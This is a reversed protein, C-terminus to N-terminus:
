KGLLKSSIKIKDIYDIRKRMVLNTKIYSHFDTNIPKVNAFEYYLTDRKYIVIKWFLSPLLQKNIVKTSYDCGVIVIKKDIYDDFNTTIDNELSGWVGRNLSFEQLVMNSWINVSSSSVINPNILVPGPSALESIDISYPLNNYCFDAYPVLHGIDYIPTNKYHSAASQFKSSILPDFRTTGRAIKYKFTNNSLEYISFITHKQAIDYFMDFGVHPIEVIQARCPFRLGVLVLLFLKYLKM